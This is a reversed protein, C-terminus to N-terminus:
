GRAAPLLAGISRAMGERWRQLPEGSHTALGVINAELERAGCGPCLRTHSLPGVEESPKGCGRCNRYDARPM